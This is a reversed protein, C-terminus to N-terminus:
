ILGERILDHLHLIGAYREGDMAVLQSISNKRIIELAKVAHAQYDITKPNQTMIDKATLSEWDQGSELMRRLDGDTIIGLLKGSPALVATIGLRKSTMEIIVKKISADLSVAPLENNDVLDSVRLYLQKGLSGGPHFQAFDSPSFGRLALLSTAIADGLAMQATTSATPALNNPDAEKEVPTHIVYTAAQALFSNLDSVMAITQNGMNKLFTMLVKMEATHGSKSVCLIIDSKQIIGLDGHVADAAHMFISPTGTSNLTAVMKMGVIASKGIGTVILRGKSEFIALIASIFQQNVANVLGILTDAEIQITEQAIKEILTENTM